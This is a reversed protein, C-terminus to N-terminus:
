VFNGALPASSGCPECMHARSGVREESAVAASARPMITTEAQSPGGAATVPSTRASESIGWISKEGRGDKRGSLVMTRVKSSPGSLVLVARTSSMRRLLFTRAVKKM